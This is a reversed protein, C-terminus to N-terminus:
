HISVTLYCDSVFAVNLTLCDDVLCFTDSCHSCFKDVRVLEHLPDTYQGFPWFVCVKIRHWGDHKGVGFAVCKHVGEQQESKDGESAGCLVLAVSVHTGAGEGVGNAYVALCMKYGEGYYFPPSHWVKGSRRYEPFKSMVIEVADGCKSLTQSFTMLLDEDLEKGQKLLRLATVFKGNLARLEKRAKNLKLKTERYDKMMQFLHKNQNKNLHSELECREFRADCGADAFTCEVLQRPCEARHSEVYKRKINQAGCRNPCAIPFRPCVTHHGGIYELPYREGFERGTVGIFTDSFGCYECQHPRLECEEKLHKKMDKRRRSVPGYQDICRNSCKVVVYGCRETNDPSLHRDLESIEGTWQCGERHNRCKVKPQAVSSNQLSQNFSRNFDNGKACCHPCTDREQGGGQKESSWAKLCSACYYQGCCVSCLALHTDYILKSCIQCSVHDMLRSGTAEYRQRQDRNEAM